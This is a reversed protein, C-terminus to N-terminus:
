ECWEFYSGVVKLLDLYDDLWRLGDGSYHHVKQECLMGTSRAECEGLYEFLKSITSRAILDAAKRSNKTLEAARGAFLRAIRKPAGM